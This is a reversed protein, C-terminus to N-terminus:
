DTPQPFQIPARIVNETGKKVVTTEPGAQVCLEVQYHKEDGNHNSSSFVLGLTSDKEQM